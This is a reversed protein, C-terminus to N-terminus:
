RSEQTRVKSQFFNGPFRTLAQRVELQLLMPYLEASTWADNALLRELSVPEDACLTLLERERPSFDAPDVAAPAPERSARTAKDSPEPGIVVHGYAAAIDEPSTVPTAGLKLLHNPGESLSWRINGPVAFVDRDQQLAHHATIISGSRITGEIVVVGLALGSIIRNRVPFHHPLPPTGPAYETFVAGRELLQKRIRHNARPYAQDVGCGLVAVSPSLGELAGKHAFTDIGLALGSVVVFGLDSLGRGFQRAVDYGQQSARRSGVVAIAPRSAVEPNGVAYLVIPADATERLRAPYLPDAFTLVSLGEVARLPAFDVAAFPRERAELFRRLRTATWGPVEALDDSTAALVGEPTGFRKILGCKVTEGVWDLGALQLWPTLAREQAPNMTAAAQTKKSTM